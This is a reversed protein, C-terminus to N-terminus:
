CSPIKCERFLAIGFNPHRCEKYLEVGFEERRCSNLKTGVNILCENYHEAGFSEHRCSKYEECHAFLGARIYLKEDRSKTNEYGEKCHPKGNSPHVYRWYATHPQIGCIKHKKLNYKEVGCRLDRKKEFKPSRGCKENKISNYMEAGCEKGRNLNYLEVGCKSDRKTKPECPSQKTNQFRLPITPVVINEPIKCLELDFFCDDAAEMLDNIAKAFLNRINNLLVPDSSTLNYRQPSSLINEVYSLNDMLEYKQNSLHQITRSAFRARYPSIDSPYNPAVRIYPESIAIIPIGSNDDQVKKAFSKAYELANAIDDINIPIDEVMGGEQHFFISYKHGTVLKYLKEKISSKSGGFPGISFSVKSEVKRKEEESNTSIELLAFFEGGKIMGTVVENGCRERFKKEGNPLKLLKLYSKNLFPRAMKVPPMQVSIHILAYVSNSNFKRERFYKLKGDAKFYNFKLNAAHTIGLSKAFDTSSSIYKLYGNVKAIGTGHKEPETNDICRGYSDDKISDYGDGLFLIAGTNPTVLPMSFANFVFSLM